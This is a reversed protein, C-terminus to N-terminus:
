LPHRATRHHGHSVESSQGSKVGYRLRMVIRRCGPPPGAGEAQMGIAEDGASVTLTPIQARLAKM